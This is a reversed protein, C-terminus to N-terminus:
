LRQQSLLYCGAAWISILALVCINPWIYVTYHVQFQDPLHMLRPSSPAHKRQQLQQELQESAPLVAPFHVWRYLLERHNPSAELSALVATPPPLAFMALLMQLAALTDTEQAQFSM